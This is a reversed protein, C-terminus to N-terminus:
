VNGHREAMMCLITCVLLVQKKKRVRKVVLLECLWEYMVIEGVRGHVCDNM